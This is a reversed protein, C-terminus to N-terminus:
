TRGRAFKSFKGERPGRRLARNSWGSGHVEWGAGGGDRGGRFVGEGGEVMEEAGVGRVEEGEVLEGVAELGDDAAALEVELEEGDGVEGRAVALVLEDDAGIAFGGVDDDIGAGGGGEDLEPAAEAAAM